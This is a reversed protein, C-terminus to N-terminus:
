DPPADTALADTAADAVSADVPRADTRADTTADVEGRDGAWFVVDDRVGAVEARIRVPQGYGGYYVLLLDGTVVTDAGTPRVAMPSEESSILEGDPRELRTMQAVCDGTGTGTIRLAAVIMDSGQGGAVLQVVDDTAIPTFVGAADHGIEVATVTPRPAGPALECTESQPTPVNCGGGCGAAGGALAVATAITARM